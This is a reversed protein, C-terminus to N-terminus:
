GNPILYTDIDKRTLHKTERAYLSPNIELALIETTTGWAMPIERRLLIPSEAPSNRTMKGKPTKIPM